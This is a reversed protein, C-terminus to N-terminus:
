RDEAISYHTILLEQCEPTNFAWKWARVPLPSYDKEGDSWKARVKTDLTEPYPKEPTWKWKIWDSM